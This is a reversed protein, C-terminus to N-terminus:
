FREYHIIDELNRLEKRGPMEDAYGIGLLIVLEYNDTISLMETITQKDEEFNLAVGLITSFIDLSTAALLFSQMALSAAIRYSKGEMQVCVGILTAHEIFSTDQKYIGLRERASTYIERIKKKTEMNKVIIFEWPQSNLASPAWRAAEVMKRIMDDPVLINKFKRVTRRKKIIEMLKNYAGYEVSNM